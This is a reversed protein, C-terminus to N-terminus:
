QKQFVQKIAEFRLLENQNTIIEKSSLRIIQYDDNDKNLLWLEDKFDKGYFSFNVYNYNHMFFNYLQYIKYINSRNM